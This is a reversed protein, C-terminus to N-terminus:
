HAFPITLLMTMRITMKRKLSSRRNFTMNTVAFLSCQSCMAFAFNM